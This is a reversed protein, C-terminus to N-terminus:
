ETQVRGGPFADIPQQAPCFLPKLCGRLLTAQTVCQFEMCFQGKKLFINGGHECEGPLRTRYERRVVEHVTSIKQGSPVFAKECSIHIRRPVVAQFTGHQTFTTAVIGCCQGSGVKKTLDTKGPALQAPRRVITVLRQGTRIFVSLDKLVLEYRSSPVSLREEHGPGIVVQSLKGIFPIVQLGRLLVERLCSGESFIRLCPYVHQGGTRQDLRTQQQATSFQSLCLPQQFCPFPLSAKGPYAPGYACTLGPQVQSRAVQM